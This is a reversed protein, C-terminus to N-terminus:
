ISGLFAATRGLVRHPHPTRRNGWEVAAAHGATNSLTAAVRPGLAFMVTEADVDFSQQYEGSDRPAIAKAFVRGRNAEAVCAKLIAPSLSIAAWGSKSPEYRATVDAM